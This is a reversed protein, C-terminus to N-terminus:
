RKSISSERSFEVPPGGHDHFNYGVGPVNATVKIGASELFKAYGIGSRQLIQPTHIAGAAIIVELNATALSLSRDALDQIEVKPPGANPDEGYVVRTV